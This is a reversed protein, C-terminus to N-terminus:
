GNEISGTFGFAKLYRYVSKQEKHDFRTSLPMKEVMTAAHRYSDRLSVPMSASGIDVLLLFLKLALYLFDPLQHHELM